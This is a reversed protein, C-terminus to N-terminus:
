SKDLRGAGMITEVIVGRVAIQDDITMRARQGKREFVRCHM